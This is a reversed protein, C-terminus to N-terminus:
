FDKRFIVSGIGAERRSDNVVMVQKFGAKEQVKLSSKNSTAVDTYIGKYKKNKAMEDAFLRLRTGLGLGRYDSHIGTGKSYAYNRLDEPFSKSKYLIYPGFLSYGILEASNKLQCVIVTIKKDKHFFDQYLKPVVVNESAGKYVFNVYGTNCMLKYLEKADKYTAERFFYDVMNM